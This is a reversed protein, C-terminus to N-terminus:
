VADLYYGYNLTARNTWATTYTTRTPNNKVSAYRISTSSANIILWHDRFQKGIYTFTIQDDIDCVGSALNVPLPNNDTVDHTEDRTHIRSM